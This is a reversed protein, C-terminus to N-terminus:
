TSDKASDVKIVNGDDDFFPNSKDVFNGENDRKYGYADVLNGDKDLKAGWENVLNGDADVFEGKDNVLRLNENVFKYQILFKNEPLSQEFNEDLGYFESAYNTASDIAAQESSSLFSEYSDFYKKKTTNYVTCQSVLYNFRANDSQGEITINDYETYSTLLISQKVRDEKISLALKKGESLKMKGKHLKYEKDAISKQLQELEKQREDDWLGEQRLKNSLKKRLLGGGNELLEAFKKNYVINAQTLVEATPAVFTLELEKGKGDVTKFVKM